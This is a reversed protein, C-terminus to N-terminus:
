LDPEFDQDEYSRDQQPIQQEEHVRPTLGRVAMFGSGGMKNIEKREIDMEELEYVARGEKSGSNSGGSLPRM